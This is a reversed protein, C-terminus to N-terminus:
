TNYLHHQRIYTDVADPILYKTSQHQLYRQRILSSSLAFSPIEVCCQKLKECRQFGIYSELKAVEKLNFGPRSGIAFDCLELLAQWEYWKPLELINDAGIIFSLNETYQKKLIRITEITYSVQPRMIEINSIEFLPNDQIALKVMLYRHQESIINLKHPPTKSPIFLVKSFGLKQAVEQALILHGIHIPDFTGGLIGITEM